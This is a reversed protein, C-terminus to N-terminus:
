ESVGGVTVASSTAPAVAYPESESHRSAILYAAINVGSMAISGALLACAGGLIGYLPLLLPAIILSTAFGAVDAMLNIDPRELVLMARGTALSSKAVLQNVALVILTAWAEAYASGFSNKLIWGGITSVILTFGLLFLCLLATAKWVIRNLRAQGGNHFGIATWPTLVNNLSMIIPNAVRLISDCAAFVGTATPGLWFAILWLMMNSAVVNTAQSAVIWRGLVWNKMVFYTSRARRFHFEGRSLWLWGFAAVASGCGMAYLATAASLNGSSALLGLAAIQTTAGAASMVLVRSLRMRAFLFRRTFERILFIPAVLAFAAVIEVIQENEGFWYLSGAIVALTIGVLAAWVASQTLAAGSCQLHRPGNLKAVVITYPLTVLSEQVTMLLYFVTMVLAFLGLNEAGALRGLLLLTVFNGGGVIVQDILALVTKGRSGHLV